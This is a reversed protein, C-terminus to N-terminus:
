QEVSFEVVVPYHDSGINPGTRRDRIVIDPSALCHDIPIRLFPLDVPWSPQVGFGRRSDTLGSNRILEAFVPSWSTTNLDGLLMIPPPQGAALQATQRLQARRDAFYDRGAPPLPHTAIVTLTRGDLEITAIISPLGRGASDFVRGERIPLRSVLAIGFNDERVRTRTFAYEPGLEQIAAWWRANVEEVVLFDPRTAKVWAMFRRPDENQAEVNALAARYIKGAGAARQGGFYLPAVLALNMVALALGAGGTWWKRRGLEVAAMAALGVAYQVRFHAWVELQWVRAFFGAGSMAGLLGMVALM